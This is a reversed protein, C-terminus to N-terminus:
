INSYDTSGISKVSSESVVTDEKDTNRKKFADVRSKVFEATLEGAKVAQPAVKKEVFPQVKDNIFGPRVEDEPIIGMNKQGVRTLHKELLLFNRSNCKYGVEVLDGVIPILGFAFDIAINFVFILLLDLPFRDDLGTNCLWLLQLSWFTSVIPGVIPVLGVINTWGFKIGFLVFWMDYRYARSRFTNLVKTDNDLIGEPTGRKVKQTNGNPLTRFEYYPDEVGLRNWQNDRLLRRSMWKLVFSM